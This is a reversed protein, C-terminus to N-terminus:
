SIIVNNTRCFQILPQKRKALEEIRSNIEAVAHQVEQVDGSVQALKYGANTSSTSIIPNTKSIHSLIDRIQRDQKPWSWELQEAIQQKTVYDNKSAMFAHVLKCRLEFRATKPKKLNISM